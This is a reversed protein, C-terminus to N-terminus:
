EEILINRKRINLFVKFGEIVALGRGTLSLKQNLKIGLISPLGDHQMVKTIKYLSFAFGILTKTLALKEGGRSEPNCIRWIMDLRQILDGM